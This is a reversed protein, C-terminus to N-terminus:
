STIAKRLPPHVPRRPWRYEGGLLGFYVLGSYRGADSCGSLYGSGWVGRGKRESWDSGWFHAYKRAKEDGLGM